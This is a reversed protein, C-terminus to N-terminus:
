DTKLQKVAEKEKNVEDTLTAIKGKILFRAFGKDLEVISGKKFTKITHEYEKLFKVKM